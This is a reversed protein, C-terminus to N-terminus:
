LLRGWSLSLALACVAWALLDSARSQALRVVSLILAVLILAFPM